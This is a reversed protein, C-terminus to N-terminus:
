WHLNLSQQLATRATEDSATLGVLTIPRFRPGASMAPRAFRPRSQLSPAPQQGPESSAYTKDNM